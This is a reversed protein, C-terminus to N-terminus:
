EQITQKEYIDKLEALKELDRKRKRESAILEKAIREIKEDETEEREFSAHIDIFIYICENGINKSKIEKLNLIALELYSIAYDISLNQQGINIRKIDKILKNM